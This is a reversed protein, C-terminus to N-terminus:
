PHRQRCRRGRRMHGAAGRALQPEGVFSYAAAVTGAELLTRRTFRSPNDGNENM